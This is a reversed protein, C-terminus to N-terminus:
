YPVDWKGGFAIQGLPRRVRPQLERARLKEPLDDLKGRYPYGVAIMAILSFGQPVSFETRTRDLDFGAMQHAALGLAAAQVVLNESALGVDHEATRNSQDTKSFAEQAVSIMLVPAQRAWANGEVLCARARDLADKDSGDFVLYRWPQENFCSPAWRAAELMTLIKTREVPRNMAFARPSWRRALYELIPSNAPAYKDPYLSGAPGADRSLIGDVDVGIHRVHGTLHAVYDDLIFRLTIPASGGITCTRSWAAQSTVEALALLQRNLVQWTEILEFWARQHYQQLEVWMEGDYEALAPNDEVQGLILRRHNNLASDILHGLEDKKSWQGPGPRATAVDDPVEALLGPLRTLLNRLIEAGAPIGDPDRSADADETNM